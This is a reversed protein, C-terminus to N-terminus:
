AGASLHSFGPRDPRDKSGSSIGEADGVAVGGRDRLRLVDDARDPPCADRPRTDILTLGEWGMAGAPSLSESDTEGASLRLLVDRLYAWPELRRRKAGALITFM